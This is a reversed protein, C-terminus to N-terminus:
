VPVNISLSWRESFIPEYEGNPDLKRSGGREVCSLWKEIRADKIKCVEELLYGVRVKEIKNGHQDLEDIILNKYQLGYDRYVDVVHRMGGCRIPERVMDLFVRGITAVRLVSDSIRKFGGPGVHVSSFMDVREKGIKKFLPKTLRPLESSFYEELRGEFDKEMRQKAFIKWNKYDPTSATLTNPLRDTLGHFSMASLHSVYAFPDLSCLVEAPGYNKKGLIAWWTGEPKIVGINVLRGEVRKLDPQSPFNKSIRELPEGQFKKSIYLRSLLVGLEYHSIVPQDLDGVSLTVAKYLDM